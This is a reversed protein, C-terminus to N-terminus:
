AIKGNLKANAFTEEFASGAANNIALKTPVPALKRDNEEIASFCAM